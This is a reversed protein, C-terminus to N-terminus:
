KALAALGRRVAGADAIGRELRTHERRWIPVAKALLAHGKATLVIRRTRADTADAKVAVLGRRVLPKLAATLTTRDAALLEAVEGLMPPAARNLANLLSFQENTVGVARFAADFRRGLARAARQAAFCLCTDKM